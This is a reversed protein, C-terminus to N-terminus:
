AEHEDQQAEPSVRKQSLPPRLCCSQNRAHSVPRQHNSSTTLGSRGLLQPIFTEAQRVAACGPKLRVAMKYMM